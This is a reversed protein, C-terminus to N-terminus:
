SLGTVIVKYVETKGFVTQLFAYVQQLEDMIKDHQDGKIAAVQLITKQMAIVPEHATYKQLLKNEYRNWAKIGYTTINITFQGAGQTRTATFGAEINLDPVGPRTFHYCIDLGDIDTWGHDATRQRIGKKIERISHMQQRTNELNWADYQQILQDIAIANDHFFHSLENPTQEEFIRILDKQM